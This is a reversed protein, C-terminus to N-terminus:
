RAEWSVAYNKLNRGLSERSPALAYRNFAGDWYYRHFTAIEAYAGRSLFYTVHVLAKALMKWPGGYTATLYGLNRYHFHARESPCLKIRGFIGLRVFSAKPTPHRHIANIATAVRVGKRKARQLYEVEDGWIFCEAKIDGVRAYAERTIFTGNFPNAVGVALGESAARKVDAVSSMHAGDITLGFALAEDNFQDVVIPNLLAAGRAVRVLEELCSADPAGDDDMLWAADAGDAMATKLGLHFGGAGGTNNGLVLFDLGVDMDALVDTAPADSANDVVLIRDVRRTQAKIAAICRRLLEPRNYTVVVACVRLEQDSM